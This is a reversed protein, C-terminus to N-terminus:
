RQPFISEIKGETWFYRVVAMAFIGIEYIQEPTVPSQVGTLEVINALAFTIIAIIIEKSGFLSKSM